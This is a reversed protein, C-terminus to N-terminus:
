EAAAAAPMRGSGNSVIEWHASLYRFSDCRALASGPGHRVSRVGYRRSMMSQREGDDGTSRVANMFPACIPPVSHPFLQIPYTIWWACPGIIATWGVTSIALRLEFCRM